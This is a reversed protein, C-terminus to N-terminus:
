HDHDDSDGEPRTLDPQQGPEVVLFQGMMGQDEHWLLHCHYMYPTSADAYDEFRVLLRYERNWELAITDKYGALRAPPVEGDVSLVRFQTDHVHFSHPLPNDNRVTWVESTDVTATFDARGLDMERDNIEHGSMEFSREPAAAIADPTPLETLHAPVEPSDGLSEAARLELVDFTASGAHLDPDPAASRLAVQEGPTMTVVIEAREGPSLPISESPVPAELLGGDTAILDFERGDAFAFDYMRASSGNLLRLRVRETTVELHPAIVGNVLITDGLVGDFQMGIGGAFSGDPNFARDQVILPIDDVGYDRPLALAAEEDDRVLFMGALGADVQERTRGHLHPHYWLTAAPQDIVWEPHWSAGPAIPSHPGGDMAAPLHMGHWHVTTPDSLGNVTDVRVREGRAAVLTPGLYSGNYGLTATEGQPVFATTGEQASLDFVRVGDEVRSPALEPVPLPAAFDVTGAAPPTRRVSNTAFWVAAAGVLLVVVGLVSVLAIVLGRRGRRRRPAAADGSPSPVRPPAPPAPPASTM